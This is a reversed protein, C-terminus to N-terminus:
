KWSEDEKLHYLHDQILSFIYKSRWRITYINGFRAWPFTNKFCLLTYSVMCYFRRNWWFTHGLNQPSLLLNWLEKDRPGLMTPIALYFIFLISHLFLLIYSHTPASLHSMIKSLSIPEPLPRLSLSMHGSIKIFYSTSAMCTIQPSLTGPVLFLLDLLGLPPILNAEKLFCLVLPETWFQPFLSLLLLHLELPLLSGIAPNQAPPIIARIEKECVDRQESSYPHM